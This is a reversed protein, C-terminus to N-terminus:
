REAPGARRAAGSRECARASVRCRVPSDTYRLGSPPRIVVPSIPGKLLPAKWRAVTSRRASRAATSGSGRGYRDPCPTRRAAQRDHVDEDLRGDVRRRPVELVDRCVLLAHAVQEDLPMACASRRAVHGDRRDCDGCPWAASMRAGSMAACRQRPAAACPCETRLAVRQHLHQPMAGGDLRVVDGVRKETITFDLRARQGPRLEIAGASRNGSPQLRAQVGAVPRQQQIRGSEVEDGCEEAAQVSAHQRHRHQRWLASASASADVTQGGDDGVRRRPAREGGGLKMLLERVFRRSPSSPVISSPVGHTAM